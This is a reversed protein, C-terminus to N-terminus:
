LKIIFLMTSLSQQLVQYLTCRCLSCSSYVITSVARHCSVCFISCCFIVYVYENTVNLMRTYISSDFVLHLHSPRLLLLESGFCDKM